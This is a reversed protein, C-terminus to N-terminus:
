ICWKFLLTLILYIGRITKKNKNVFEHRPAVKLFESCITIVVKETYICIYINQSNVFYQEHM